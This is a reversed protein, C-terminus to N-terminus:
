DMIMTIALLGLIVASEEQSQSVHEEASEEAIKLRLEDLSEQLNRNQTTRINWTVALAGAMIIVVITLVGVVVGSIRSGRDSM